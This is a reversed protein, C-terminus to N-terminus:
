ESLLTAGQPFAVVLVESDAHRLVYDVTPSFFRRQRRWKPSSGLIVLDASEEAAEAVIAEGISRARVTKGVVAVGQAAGLSAAEALSAAAREEQDFLPADVPQDLPVKIVFLAEIAAQQHGALRIGTKIMEEGIPGLKMPVLIRSLAPRETRPRRVVPGSVIMVRTPADRVIALVEDPFARRFGRRSHVPAGVVVLEARHDTVVEAIERGLGGTRTRIIREKTGVGYTKALENARRLRVRMVNTERDFRANLPLEQDVLIPAVLVVNAGRQGALRCALDLAHATESRGLLPVVISRYTVAATRRALRRARSRAQRMQELSPLRM